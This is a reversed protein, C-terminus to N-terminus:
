SNEIEKRLSAWRKGLRIQGVNAKTRNYKKAFKEDDEQTKCNLIIDRVEHIPFRRKRGWTHDIYFAM